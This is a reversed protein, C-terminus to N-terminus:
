HSGGRNNISADRLVRQIDRGAAGPNPSSVHITVGGMNTTTNHINGPVTPAFEEARNEGVIMRKSGALTSGGRDRFAFMALTAALAAGGVAAATGWSAVSTLAAAPAMAAAQATGLAATKTAEAARAADAFVMATIQQAMWGELWELGKNIAYDKSADEINAMTDSYSQKGRIMETLQANHMGLQASLSKQYDDMEKRLNEARKDALEQELEALEELRKKEDAQAKAKKDEADKIAIANDNLRKSIDAQGRMEQENADQRVKRARDQMALWEGAEVGNILTPAVNPSGGKSEGKSEGFGDGPKIAPIDTKHTEDFEKLAQQRTKGNIKVAKGAFDSEKMAGSAIAKNRIDLLEGYQDIIEQRGAANREQDDLLGMAIRIQNVGDLWDEIHPLVKEALTLALGNIKNQILVMEDKVRASKEAMEATVVAAGGMVENISEGGMKLIPMMEQWQKGYAKQAITVAETHTKANKVRDAIEIMAGVGDTTSLNLSKIAEDGVAVKGAFKGMIQSVSELSTGGLEAVPALRSLIEVSQGTRDALDNMSDAYDIGKSILLVLGAGVAVAAAAVAAMPGLALTQMAQSVGPIQEGVGAISSGAKDMAKETKKGTKEAADGFEVLKQTGKDDVDLVYRIKEDAM